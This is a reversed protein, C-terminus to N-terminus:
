AYSKGGSDDGIDMMGLRRGAAVLALLVRELDATHTKCSCVTLRTRSVTAGRPMRM